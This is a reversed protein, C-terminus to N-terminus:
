KRESAMEGMRKHKRKKALQSTAKLKKKEELKSSCGKERYRRSNKM